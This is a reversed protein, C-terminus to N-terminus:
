NQPGDPGGGLADWAPDVDAPTALKAQGKGDSTTMGALSLTPAASASMRAAVALYKSLMFTNVAQVCASGDCTNSASPCVRRRANAERRNPRPRKLEASSTSKATPTTASVTLRNRFSLLM